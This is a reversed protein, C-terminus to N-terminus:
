HFLYKNDDAGHIQSHCHSCEQYGQFRRASHQADIRESWGQHPTHHCSLCLGPEPQKLMRILPSGHARHCNLCDEAAPPHAFTHPGALNAHCTFCTESITEKKMLHPGGAPSGHPDHCGACTMKGERLPHRSPLHLSGRVNQHCKLCNEVEAERAARDEVKSEHVKHCDLCSVDSSGHATVKFRSFKENNHCAMCAEVIEKAEDEGKKFSLIFAPDGEKEVHLSGPGHCEECGKHSETEGKRPFIGAHVSQHIAKAQDDHCTTCTESGVYTKAVAAAEATDKNGATATPLNVVTFLIMVVLFLVLLAPLRRNMSRQAPVHQPCNTNRNM